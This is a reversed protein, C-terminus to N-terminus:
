KLSVLSQSEKLSTITQRKEKRKGIVKVNQVECRVNEEDHHSQLSPLFHLMWNDQSKGRMKCHSYLLSSSFFICDLTVPTVRAFELLCRLDLSFWLM